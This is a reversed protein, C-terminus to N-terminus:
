DTFLTRGPIAPLHDLAVHPWFDQVGVAHCYVSVAHWLYVNVHRSKWALRETASAMELADGGSGPLTHELHDPVDDHLLRLAENKLVDVIEQVERHHKREDNLLQPTHLTRVADGLILDVVLDPSQM